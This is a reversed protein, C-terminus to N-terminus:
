MSALLRAKLRRQWSPPLARAFWRGPRTYRFRVAVHALRILWAHETRPAAQVARGGGQAAALATYVRGKDHIAPAEKVPAKVGAYVDATLRGMNGTGCHTARSANEAARALNGAEATSLLRSLQDLIAQDDQWDDMLWGGGSAQVREGLAGIPPVLAPRHAAFSETLTYSFTEPGASPFVTMRVRYHDFLAPIEAPRYPGHVTFVADDGQIPLYQRDLYGILVWRLPLRAQRTLAVLRELRRAGKVPGIAGLVCVTPVGDDPLSFRPEIAVHRTAIHPKDHPVIHVDHPPYYRALLDAASRSPALLFQAAALLAAHDRRWEVLDFERLGPQDALCRRCVEPDTEGGCFRDSGDMLTITPCALHFDHVTIGYSVGANALATLLGSRSGSLHHVHVFQVAFLGVVEGLFSAWLEDNKREFCYSIAPEARAGSLDEIEWRDGLAVMVYHRHGPIAEVLDHVHHETGGGRGHLVHLVGPRGPARVIREVSRAFLRTLRPADAAIFDQVLKPYDPFRSILLQSNAEVLAAKKADFSRNGVHAVFTDDLLVNRFGAAALRRCFDNEEGYGLGYREDFRGVADLAARRVYMCFGVATPLDPYDHRSALELARNPVEPDDGMAWPHNGCMEPYSCIEANNSFPTITAIRPDSAACALVKPLWGRTVITDSNLLIVDGTTEDFGRNVTGIFGLNRANTSVRIRSDRAALGQLLPAIRADPSADDILLLRYEGTTRELVSALCRVLDDHANYIPIIVDISM